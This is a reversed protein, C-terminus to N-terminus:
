WTLLPLTLLLLTLLKGSQIQPVSTSTRDNLPAVPLGLAREADGQAFFEQCVLQSWRSSTAWPRTTNSIDACKIAM